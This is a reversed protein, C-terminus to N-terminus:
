VQKKFWFCGCGYEQQEVLKPDADVILGGADPILSFEKLTLPSFYEMIQEYSYIRHANFEIRPKGVPTVFLLDGGPKLVRKLEAIAKLDGDGDLPDGYRGLGIHEVTHMCSLSVIEGDAFPLQQLDAFGSEYDPLQLQAPRYDYFKVPVFASVVVGFSLISSIDIHQAPRTQALVRAAWAPHYTYHQDFPTSSIRDNLCPYVDRVRMKFRHKNMKRFRAFEGIYRFFYAVRKPFRVLINKGTRVIYHKLYM